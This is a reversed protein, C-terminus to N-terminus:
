KSAHLELVASDTSGEDVRAELWPMILKLKGRAQMEDILPKAPVMSGGALILNKIFDENTQLDILTGCVIPVVGVNVKLAYQEIFKMQNQEHFYRVLEACTLYPIAIRGPDTPPVCLAM